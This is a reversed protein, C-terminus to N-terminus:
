ALVAFGLLGAFVAPLGVFASTYGAGTAASTAAAAASTGANAASSLVSRLIQHAFPCVFIISFMGSLLVPLSLERLLLQPELLQRLQRPVLAVLPVLLPV